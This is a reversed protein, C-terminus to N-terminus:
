GLLARMSVSKQVRTSIANRAPPSLMLAAVAVYSRGACCRTRQDEPRRGRRTDKGTGDRTDEDNREERWRRNRMGLLPATGLIMGRGWSSLALGAGRIHKGLRRWPDREADSVDHANRDKLSLRTPEEDRALGARSGTVEDRQRVLDHIGVAVDRHRIRARDSGEPSRGGLHLFRNIFSWPACTALRGRARHAGSTLPFSGDQQGPALV